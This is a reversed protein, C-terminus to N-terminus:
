DGARPAIIIERDENRAVRVPVVTQIFAVFSEPDAANFVGSVPRRALAADDVKLQIRNYHNFQALVQEVTDNEFILEGRAWALARESNVPRVPAAAGSRAIRIQQNAELLAPAERKSGSTRTAGQTVAVKGEAVTVIVADSGREVAFSTGVARVATDDAVVSFPRAPNKAVRFLARGRDLFVRRADDGYRVRLRTEPDVQVVSGDALAVERREGQETQISQGRPFSLLLTAIVASAAMALTPWLRRGRLASRQAPFAEEGLALTPAGETPGRTHSGDLREGSRSAREDPPASERRQELSVVRADGAEAVGNGSIRMWHEFQDLANHVQAVRLMEAIHIASERLWDVFQERESRPMDGQLLVWWEAAERSARKRRETTDM